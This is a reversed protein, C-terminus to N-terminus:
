SEGTLLARGWKSLNETTDTTLNIKEEFLNTQM